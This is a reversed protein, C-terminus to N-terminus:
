KAVRGLVQPANQPIEGFSIGQEDANEVFYAISMESASQKLIRFWGKLPPALRFNMVESAIRGSFKLKVSPNYKEGAPVSYTCEYSGQISDGSQTIEAVASRWQYVDGRKGANPNAYAWTGALTPLMLQPGAPVAAAPAAQAPTAPIARRRVDVSLAAYHDEYNMPDKLDSVLELQMADSLLLARMRALGEPGTAGALGAGHRALSAQLAAVQSKRLQLEEGRERDSMKLRAVQAEVAVMAARADETHQRHILTVTELDVETSSKLLREQAAQVTRLAELYQSRTRDLAVRKQGTSQIRPLIEAAPLRLADRSLNSDATDWEKM